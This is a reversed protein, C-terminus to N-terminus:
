KIKEVTHFKSGHVISIKCDINFYFLQLNDNAHKVEEFGFKM